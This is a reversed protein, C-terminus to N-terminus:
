KANEKTCQPTTQASPSATASAAASATASGTSRSAGSGGSTSSGAANSTTGNGSTDASPTAAPSQAVATGDDATTVTFPEDNALANWVISASDGVKVRNGSYVWPMTAFNISDVSLGSVSQALGALTSINGLGTSTQLSQTTADLVQYLKTPQSLTGSSFIENAASRLLEQQRGIRGIDSGDGISKRARALALAQTGDLLDCGAAVDLGSYSDKLATPFYMPVGGIIDVTKMFSAFDVVVYGDLSIGTLQEVTKMTCAAASPVDGTSGGIAFAANIMQNKYASTPQTKGDSTRLTCSPIDVLTDRPISVADIRSRDKAIHVLITTDARMGSVEGSAGANDIDSDGNRTDSGLVLFNLAQGGWKDPYSAEHNKGLLSTVDTQDINSQLRAYALGVTWGMVLIIALVALLLVRWWRRPHRQKSIHAATRELEAVRCM